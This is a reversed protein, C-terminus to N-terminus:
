KNRTKNKDIIAIIILSYAILRILYYLPSEENQLVSIGTMIRNIAELLFSAAFFLFFRDRTTKWFRLFFLSIVLSAMAIAGIFITIMSM